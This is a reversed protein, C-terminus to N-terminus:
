SGRCLRQRACSEALRGQCFDSRCLSRQRSGNIPCEAFGKGLALAARPLSFFGNVPRKRQRSDMQSARPLSKEKKLFFVKGLAQGSQGEAFLKKKPFRKASLRALRARPLSNELFFLFSKASHL